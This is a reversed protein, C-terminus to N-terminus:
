LEKAKPLDLKKANPLEIRLEKTFALKRPSQYRQRLKEVTLPKGTKKGILEFAQLLRRILETENGEGEKGNRGPLEIYGKNVLENVLHVFVATDSIWKIRLLDPVTTHEPVQGGHEEMRNAVKEAFPALEKAIFVWPEEYDPFFDDWEAPTRNQYEELQEDTIDDDGWPNDPQYPEFPQPESWQRECEDGTGLRRLDKQVEKLMIAAMQDPVDRMLDLVKEVEGIADVYKEALHERVKTQINRMSELRGTRESVIDDVTGHYERSIDNLANWDWVDILYYNLGELTRAFEKVDM